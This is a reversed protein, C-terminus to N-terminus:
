GCDNKMMGYIGSMSSPKPDEVHDRPPEFYASSPVANKREQDTEKTTSGELEFMKM